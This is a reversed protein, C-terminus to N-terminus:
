TVILLDLQVQMDSGNFNEIILVVFHISVKIM